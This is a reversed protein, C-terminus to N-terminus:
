FKSYDKGSGRVEQATKVLLLNKEFLTSIKFMRWFYLNHFKKKHMM